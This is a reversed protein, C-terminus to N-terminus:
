VRRIEYRGEGDGVHVIEYTNASIDPNVTINRADASTDTHITVNHPVCRGSWTDRENPEIRFWDSSGSGNCTRDIWVKVSHDLSNYVRIKATGLCICLGEITGSSLDNALEVIDEYQSLKLILEIAEDKNTAKELDNKM